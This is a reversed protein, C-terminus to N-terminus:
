GSPVKGETGGASFLAFANFKPAAATGTNRYIRLKGGGFQGVLLDPIKDGDFDAMLPAAHGIEVDIPKGEAEVRFPASLENPPGAALAAVATSGALSLITVLFAKRM